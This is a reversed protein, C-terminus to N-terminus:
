QVSVFRRLIVVHGPENQQSRMGDSFLEWGDILHPEILPTVDQPEANYPKQWDLRVRKTEREKGIRDILYQNPAHKIVADGMGLGTLTEAFDGLEMTAKTILLGSTADEITIEIEGSGKMNSLRSITVKGDM